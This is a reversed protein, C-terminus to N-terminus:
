YKGKTKKVLLSPNLYKVIIGIDELRRFIGQRELDDFKQQLEVLKDRAYQPCRGKRQPPQVPGM